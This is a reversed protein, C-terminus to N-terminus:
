VKICTDGHQKHFLKTLKPKTEKNYTTLIGQVKEEHPCKVVGPSMKITLTQLPPQTTSVLYATYCGVVSLVAERGCLIIQHVVDM